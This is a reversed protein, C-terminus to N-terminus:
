SLPMFYRKLGLFDTARRFWSFLGGIVNKYTGAYLSLCSPRRFDGHGSTDPAGWVLRASALDRQPHGVSEALLNAPILLFIVIFFLYVLQSIFLRRIHVIGSENM